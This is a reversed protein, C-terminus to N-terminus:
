FRILRTPTLAASVKRDSAETPLTDLLENENILAISFGSFWALARDYSGGGQGLRNGNMDLALAPTIMLDIVGKFEEGIPEEINGNMKLSNPDGNWLRFELGLDSKLAPLLLEKGESLIMQNLVLTSPEDGYSRYSAITRASKFESLETILSFDFNSRSIRRQERILNRLTSKTNEM